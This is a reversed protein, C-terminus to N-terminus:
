ELLIMWSTKYAKVGTSHGLTHTLFTLFISISMSPAIHNWSSSESVTSPLYMPLHFNLQLSTLTHINTICSTQLLSM